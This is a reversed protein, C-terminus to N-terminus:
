QYDAYLESLRIAESGIERFIEEWIEADEIGLHDERFGKRGALAEKYILKGIMTAKDTPNVDYMSM